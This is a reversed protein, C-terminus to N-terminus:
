LRRWTTRLGLVCDHRGPDDLLGEVVLTDSLDDVSIAASRGARDGVACATDDYTMDGQGMTCAAPDCATIGEYVVEALGLTVSPEWRWREVEECSSSAAVFTAECGGREEDLRLTVQDYVSDWKPDFPFEACMVGDLVWRGEWPCGPGGIPTSDAPLDTDCADVCAGPDSGEAETGGCGVGVLLWTLMARDRQRM